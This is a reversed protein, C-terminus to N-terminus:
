GAAVSVAATGTAGLFTAALTGSTDFVKVQAGGGDGPATLLEATDGKGSVSVEVGGRFSAAYPAFSLLRKRTAGSFVRVSSATGSGTAAVVDAKGDGNV